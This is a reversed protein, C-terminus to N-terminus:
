TTGEADLQAVVCELREVNPLASGVASEAVVQKDVVGSEGGVSNDIPVESNM